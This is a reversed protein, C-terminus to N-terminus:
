KTWNRKFLHFNTIPVINKNLRQISAWCRYKGDKNRKKSDTTAHHLPMSTFIIESHLYKFIYQVANLPLTIQRANSIDKSLQVSMQFVSSLSVSPTFLSYFSAFLPVLFLCFYLPSISLCLPSLRQHSMVCHYGQREREVGSASRVRGTLYM